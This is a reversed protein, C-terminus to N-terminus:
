FRIRFGARLSFGSLDFKPERFTDYETDVPPTTDVIFESYVFGSNSYTDIYLKGTGTDSSGDSAEYASTVSDFNKLRAYRGEAEVFFGLRPSFRYELGVGGQVGLDSLSSRSGTISMNDWDGDAELREAAKFKLGAYWSGGANVTLDLRRAVPFNLYVGLRIPVASLTPTGSLTLSLTDATLTMLSGRSYKMYGAGLGIGIRPSIQYILDGGFDYGGHVPRYGGETTGYDLAEYLKLLEFLGDAGDNVDGAAVSSYAGYLRVSLKSLGTSGAPEAQAAHIAYVNNEFRYELGPATKAGTPGTQPTAASLLAPWALLGAAALILGSRLFLRTKSIM